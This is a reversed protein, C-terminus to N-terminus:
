CIVKFPFSIEESGDKREGTYVVYLEPASNM